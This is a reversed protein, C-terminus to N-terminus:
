EGSLCQDIIGSVATFQDIANNLENILANLEERYSLLRNLEGLIADADAAAIDISQSLNLNFNGLDVCESIANLPILFASSRVEDVVAQAAEQTAQVPIALVDYQLLQAQFVGIQSQLISVQGDILAQLSNLVSDSLTCLIDKVCNNLEVDAM